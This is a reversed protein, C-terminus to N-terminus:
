GGGVGGLVFDGIFLGEVRGLIGDLAGGMGLYECSARAWTTAKVPHERLEDIRYSM